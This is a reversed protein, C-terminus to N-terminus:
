EGHKKSTITFQKMQKIIYEVSSEDLSVNSFAAQFYKNALPWEDSTPLGIGPKIDLHEELHVDPSNNTELDDNELDEYVQEESIGNM